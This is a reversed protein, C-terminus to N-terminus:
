TGGGSEKPVIQECTGGDADEQVLHLGMATAINYAKRSHAACVLSPDRGPWFMRMFAPEGCLRESDRM